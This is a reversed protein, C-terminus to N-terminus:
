RGKFIPKRKEVFSLFGEKADETEYLNDLLRSELQLADEISLHLGEQISRKSAAVALPASEAISEAFRTAQTLLDDKEFLRDLLGIRLAEEAEISEGSALLRFAQSPGVLRPLRQSGGNGPLLGLRAEPLGLKYSGKAAFRLDCALAIELGGGLCHGEICAIFAKPSAEIKALSSRASAVMLQNQETSNQEFVKIDAGACFFRELDSKILIVRVEPHNNASDIAEGFQQHFELHYANAPPRNFSLVGVSSQSCEFTVVASSAEM